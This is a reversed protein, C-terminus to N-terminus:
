HSERPDFIRIPGGVARMKPEPETSSNRHTKYSTASKIIKIAGKSLHAQLNAKSMSAPWELDNESTPYEKIPFDTIKEGDVNKSKKKKYSKKCCNAPDSPNKINENGVEAYPDYDPEDFDEDADGDILLDTIFTASIYYYM